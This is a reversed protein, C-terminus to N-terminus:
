PCVGHKRGAALLEGRTRHSSREILLLRFHVMMGAARFRQTLHNVHKSPPPVAPFGM